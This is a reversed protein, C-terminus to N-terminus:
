YINVLDILFALNLYLFPISVARDELLKYDVPLLSLHEFVIKTWYKIIILYDYLVTLTRVSAEEM